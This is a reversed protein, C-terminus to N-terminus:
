GTVSASAISKVPRYDVGTYYETVWVILGTVVLGVVGCIYLSQGTFSLDGVTLETQFGVIKDTVFWLAVLSLLTSAVFSKYLANLIHHFKGLRVFFVGLIASVICAGGIALPYTIMNATADGVFFISALVMTAVQTVAYTEFLDAAMGACDGVN